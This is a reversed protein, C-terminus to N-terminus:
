IVKIVGRYMGMSCMFPIDGATDPAKFTFTDEQGPAIVRQYNMSPIVFAQQCGYGGTNKLTLTITSGKKVQLSSPSYGSSVIEIIAKDSVSETPNQTERAFVASVVNSFTFSSGSLALAGDLNYIALLLIAAAAIRTFNKSLVGGARAAAYGLIFFLPSTGLVFTFLIASGFIPNGSAISLAMMAQTTGCPIFITLAGLFAPAFFNSSKSNRRIIRTIFRPPQIAFYRFIPHVNLLNFATGIMFFVVAFQLIVRTGVSLDLVSGLMGLFFGLVTYAILKSVLFALIPGAHGTTKTHQELNEQTRTAISSALLGGQVALCTLGGTILGTLFITGLSLFTPNQLFSPSATQIGPLQLVLILIIFLSGGLLFFPMSTKQLNKM